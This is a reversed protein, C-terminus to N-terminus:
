NVNFKSKFIILGPPLDLDILLPMVEELPPLVLTPDEKAIGFVAPLLLNSKPKISLKTRDSHIALTWKKYMHSLEILYCIPRKFYSRM